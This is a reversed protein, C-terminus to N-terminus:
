VGIMQIVINQIEIYQMYNNVIQECIHNELEMSVVTTRFISIYIGIGISLVLM